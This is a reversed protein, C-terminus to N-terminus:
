PRRLGVWEEEAAAVDLLQWRWLFIKSFIRLEVWALETGEM